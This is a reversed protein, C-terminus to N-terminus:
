GGKLVDTGSMAVPNQPVPLVLPNLESPPALPNFGPNPLVASLSGTSPMGNVIHLHTEHAARLADLEDFFALKQAGGAHIQGDETFEIFVDHDGAETFPLLGPIVYADNYDHRRDDLPDVTGGRVLWKDLSSSAFLLMVTDGPAITWRMRTKGSGPFVVPVNTIPARERTARNGESDTYGELILPQATVCRRVVDYSLVKAPLAQSVNALASRVAGAIVGEFTPTQSESM